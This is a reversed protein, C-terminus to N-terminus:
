ENSLREMTGDLVPWAMIATGTMALLFGLLLDTNTNELGGVAGIMLLFGLGFRIM